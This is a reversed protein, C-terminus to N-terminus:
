KPLSLIYAPNTYKKHPKERMRYKRIEEETPPGLFDQVDKVFPTESHEAEGLMYRIRSQLQKDSLGEFYPALTHPYKTRVTEAWQQAVAMPNATGQLQTKLDKVTKFLARQKTNSLPGEGIGWHPYMSLKENWELTSPVQDPMDPTRVLPDKALDAPPRGIGGSSEVSDARPTPDFNWEWEAASTKKPISQDAEAPAPNKEPEKAAELMQRYRAYNDVANYAAQQKVGAPLVENLWGGTETTSRIKVGGPLFMEGGAFRRSRGIAAMQNFNERFSKKPDFPFKISKGTEIDVGLNITGGKKYLDYMENLLRTFPVMKRVTMRAESDQLKGYPGWDLISSTIDMIPTVLEQKAEEKLGLQKMRWEHEKGALEMRSEAAQQQLASQINAQQISLKQQQQFTRKQTEEQRKTMADFHEWWRKESREEAKSVAKERMGFMKVQRRWAREEAEVRRKQAREEALAQYAAAQAQRFAPMFGMM